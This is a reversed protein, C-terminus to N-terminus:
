LNELDLPCVGGYPTRLQLAEEWNCTGSWVQACAIVGGHTFVVCKEFDYDMLEELFDSVREMMDAFSEGRTASVHFPDDRWAEYLPDAITDASQMEWDGLDRELLRKDIIANQYGCYDALRMCRTLPSSFALDFHGYPMLCTKTVSAELPFSACLPVDSQGYHVRPPVNVSTHRVLVITKM